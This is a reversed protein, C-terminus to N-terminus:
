YFIPLLLPRTRESHEYMKSSPKIVRNIEILLAFTHYVYKFSMFNAITFILNKVFYRSTFHMLLQTHLLLKKSYLLRTHSRTRAYPLAKRMKCNAVHLHLKIELTIVTKLKCKLESMPVASM